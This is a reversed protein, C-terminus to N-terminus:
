NLIVPCVLDYTGASLGAANIAKLFLAGAGNQSVQLGNTYDVTHTNCYYGNNITLLVGYQAVTASLTFNVNFFLVGGMYLVKANNITVNTGATLLSSEDQNINAQHYATMGGIKTGNPLNM